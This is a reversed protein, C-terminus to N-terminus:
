RSYFEVILQEQVPVDIEQRNPLALIRGALSEEDLSLWSPISRKGLLDKRIKFYQAQRSEPRV